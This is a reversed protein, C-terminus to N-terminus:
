YASAMVAAFLDDADRPLGRSTFWTCMTTCDRLMLDAGRPHGFLDVVQPLDILVLRAEQDPGAAVLTNYASLDGHVLGLEAMQGMAEVLQDFLEGLLDPALRSAALRPAPLGSADTIQEMLIETGDIQVPYPVPLGATWWRNLMTWEAAAWEGAAVERGWSSKRNLARQDRSRRVSRGETYTAARTFSRHERSRYRKAAMVVSVTPDLPDFRELLHVDAEKGTKLVGLDREQAGASTILWSPRPAPGRQLPELDSWRSWRADHEADPDEIPRFEFPQVHASPDTRDRDTARDTPRDTPRDPPVASTPEHTM